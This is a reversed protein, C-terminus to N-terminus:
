HKRPAKSLAGHPVRVRGKHGDVIVDVNAFCSSKNVGRVIVRPTRATIVVGSTGAPVTFSGNSFQGKTDQTLTVTDGDQLRYNTPKNDNEWAPDRQNRYFPTLASAGPWVSTSTGQMLKEKILTTRGLTALEFISYHFM